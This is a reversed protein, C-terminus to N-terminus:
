KNLLEKVILEKYPVDLGFEGEKFPFHKLREEPTLNLRREVLRAEAEGALRKYKDFAEMKPDMQVEKIYKMKENMLSNYKNQLAEIRKGFSPDSAQNARAKEMMNAVDNLQANKEAVQQNAWAKNELLDMEFMSPSGGKTTNELRQIAHTVEHMTPQVNIDHVLPSDYYKWGIDELDKNLKADMEPTLLNKSQLDKAQNYVAEREAEYAGANKLKSSYEGLKIMNLDPSYYSSTKNKPKFGLKTEKLEPYAKYLLDHEMVQPLPKAVDLSEASIPKALNDPIEQRWANDVYKANGTKQWIETPDIGKSELAKALSNAEKNWLKSNPGIFTGALMPAIKGAGVLAAKGIGTGILDDPSFMPAELPAEGQQFPYQGVARALPTGPEPKDSALLKTLTDRISAM